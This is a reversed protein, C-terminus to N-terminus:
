VQQAQVFAKFMPVFFWKWKRPFPLTYWTLYVQCISSNLPFYSCNGLIYIANTGTEVNVCRFYSPPGSQVTLFYKVKIRWNKRGLSPQFLGTLNKLMPWKKASDRGFFCTWVVSICKAIESKGSYYSKQKAVTDCCRCRSNRTTIQRWKSISRTTTEWDNFGRIPFQPKPENRRIGVAKREICISALHRCLRCAQIRAPCTATGTATNAISPLASPLTHPQGTIKLGAASISVQM